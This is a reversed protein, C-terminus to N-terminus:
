NMIFNFCLRYFYCWRQLFSQYCVILDNQYDGIEDVNEYFDVGYSFVCGLLDKLQCRNFVDKYGGVEGFYKRKNCNLSRFVVCM